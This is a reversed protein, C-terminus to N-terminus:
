LMNCKGVVGRVREFKGLHQYLGCLRQFRLILAHHRLISLTQLLNSLALFNAMPFGIRNHAFAITLFCDHERKYLANCAVVNGYLDGATITTPSSFGNFLQVLYITILEALDKLGNCSVITWFKLVKGADLLPPGINVESM